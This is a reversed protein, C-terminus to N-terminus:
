SLREAEDGPPPPETDGFTHVLGRLKEVVESKRILADPMSDRDLENAYETVHKSM